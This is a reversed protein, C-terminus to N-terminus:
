FIKPLNICITANGVFSDLLNPFSKVSHVSPKGKQASSQANNVSSPYHDVVSFHTHKAEIRLPAWHDNSSDCAENGQEQQKCRQGVVLGDSQM